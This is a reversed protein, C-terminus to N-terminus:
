PRFRPKNALRAKELEARAAEQASAANAAERQPAEQIDLRKAELIASQASGDLKKQVGILNFSPGFPSRILDFRYQSDEWRAVVEEQVGYQDKPAKAPAVPVVPSGYVQRIAAVMDEATLGEIEYRDYNVAIRYLVGNYFSFAVDSVAEPQASAALGRPHWDVEQIVAPRSHVVKVQSLDAGSKTLVAQLETGFQFGRYNSLDGPAAVAAIACVVLPNLVSAAMFRKLKNM